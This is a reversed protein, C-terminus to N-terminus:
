PAAFAQPQYRVFEGAADADGVGGQAILLLPGTGRVAYYLSAGPVRHTGTTPRNM